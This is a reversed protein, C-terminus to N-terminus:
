KDLLLQNQIEKRLENVLEPNQGSVDVTEFPDQQLNYLEDVGKELTKGLHILKWDGKKLAISNNSRWYMIRDQPSKKGNILNMFSLGDLKLEEQIKAGTLSALTPYVDTVNVAEEIKMHEIKGPWILIAPVRLAGDYLTTKWDRLPRNDGLVDHPKFKGNYETKSSWSKQGGNDSLFLVMTNNEIGNNKLADLIMGISNDMHTVAAANNRRSENSITQRYM